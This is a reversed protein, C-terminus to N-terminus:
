KKMMEFFVKAPVKLRGKEKLEKKGAKQRELLKKKRSYDGGYLSATVDKSKARITERAIIAGGIAAQLPVNFLQPPLVEKLRELFSKAEQYALEKPVIKSFVEEKRGAILIEMKALAAPRFGLFEYNLSGYGQSVGKLKDYFGTIIEALPAEYRLLFASNSFFDSSLHKQRITATLEMVRGLYESPVLIDLSVWPEYAEKVLFSDPWDSASKISIEEGKQSVIKYAVSPSSVILKMGFERNLRESIIEAHLTGLFGCRFGRGLADKAEPEVTFSPDTLRLKELSDKLSKYHGPDEPYVSLFVVPKPEKYGPLPKLDTSQGKVANFNVLTDGIKIKGPEKIGTALYGIEGSKLKGSPFLAPKFYGVEIADGVAKEALLFVKDGAKIEGDVVKIFVIIGKYPDYRSGFVLARFEKDPNAESQPLKLLVEKLLEEVGAGLKASISFIKDPSIALVAALAEKTEKIKAQPLDIKNVAPIIILGQDKALKLNALTQAQIGKTADVLLIAGDVAALSRSVEYSFDVHGPTDILNLVSFDFGLEKGINDPLRWEMRVPQMKITIGKERELDMTDLFQPRLKEKPVTGTIELFRDALTSKGHDIHSLIAFNRMPPNQGTEKSDM